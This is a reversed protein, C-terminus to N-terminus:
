AQQGDKTVDQRDFPSPQSSESGLAVQLAIYEIIGGDSVFRLVRVSAKVCIAM